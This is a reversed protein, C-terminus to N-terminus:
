LPNEALHHNVRDHPIWTKEGDIWVAGIAAADIGIEVRHHYIPLGNQVGQVLKILGQGDVSKHFCAVPIAYVVFRFYSLMDFFALVSSRILSAHVKFILAM